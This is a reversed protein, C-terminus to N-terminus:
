TEPQQSLTHAQTNLTAQSRHFASFETVNIVTLIQPNWRLHGILPVRCACFWPSLRSPGPGSAAKTAYMINLVYISLYIHLQYSVMYM